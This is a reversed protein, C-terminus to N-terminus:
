NAGVVIPTHRGGAGPKALRGEGRRPGLSPSDRRLLYDLVSEVRRRRRLVRCQWGVGRVEAGALYLHKAEDCSPHGVGLYGPFEVYARTGNVGVKPGDVM